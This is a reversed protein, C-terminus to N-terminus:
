CRVVLATVNAIENPEGALIASSVVNTRGSARISTEHISEDFDQPLPIPM